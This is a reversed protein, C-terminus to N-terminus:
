ALAAAEWTIELQYNVLIRDLSTYDATSSVHNFLGCIFIFFSQWRACPTDVILRDFKVNLLLDDFDAYFKVETIFFWM